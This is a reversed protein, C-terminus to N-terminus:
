LMFPVGGGRPSPSSSSAVGDADGSLYDEWGLNHVMTALPELEFLDPCFARYVPVLTLMPAVLVTGISIPLFFVFFARNPM